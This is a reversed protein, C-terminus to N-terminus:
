DEGLLRQACEEATTLIKWEVKVGAARRADVARRAKEIWRRDMASANPAEVVVHVVGGLFVEKVAYARFFGAAVGGDLLKALDARTLADDDAAVVFEALEPWDSMNIM